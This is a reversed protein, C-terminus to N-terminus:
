HREDIQYSWWSNSVLQEVPVTLVTEICPSPSLGGHSSGVQPSPGGHPPVVMLPFWGLPLSWWSPSGVPSPSVTSATWMIVLRIWQCAHMCMYLHMYAHAHVCTCICTRMYLHMYVHVSAHVCTCICAHVSYLHIYAHVSACICTRVYLHMYAHVSAHMCLICIYMYTRMCLYM